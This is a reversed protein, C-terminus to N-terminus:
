YEVMYGYGGHIQIAHDCVRSAMETSFLKTMAVQSQSLEGADLARASEAVLVRGAELETAMDALQGQIAQFSTLTKGFQEREDAYRLAREYAGGAIGVAVSSIALQGFRLTEQLIEHGKAFGVLSHQAPVRLAEFHIEGMGSGRLGFQEDMRQIKLQTSSSEVLFLGYDGAEGAVAVVLLDAELVNVVLVKSGELIYDDGERRYRAPSTGTDVADASDMWALASLTAGSALAPIFEQRIEASAHQVLLPLVLTNHVAVVLATTGSVRALEEFTLCCSLADIGAGGYEEPATLGMLNLDAAQSIIERPFRDEADIKGAPEALKESAFDRVVERIMAQESSLIM